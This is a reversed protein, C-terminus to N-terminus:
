KMDSDRRHNFEREAIASLVGENTIKGQAAIMMQQSLDESVFVRDYARYLDAEPTRLQLYAFVSLLALTIGALAPIMQRELGLFTQWGAVKQIEVEIHTGLKGYFDPSPTMEPITRAIRHPFTLLRYERSCSVCQALHADLERNEFDRLEGDIKRFLWSHIETCKM